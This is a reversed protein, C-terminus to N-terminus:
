SAAEDLYANAWLAAATRNGTKTKEFIAALHTRVTTLSINLQDCIDRDTAGQAVLRLVDRQRASLRATPNTRVPRQRLSRVLHGTMHRPVVTEGSRVLDLVRFLSAVGRDRCALGHVGHVLADLAMQPDASGDVVVTSRLQPVNETMLHVIDFDNEAALELEALLLTPAEQRLARFVEGGTHMVSVEGYGDSTAAGAVSEALLVDSHLVMLSEDRKPRRRALVDIPTPEPVRM